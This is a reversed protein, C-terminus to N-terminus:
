DELFVEMGSLIDPLAATAADEGAGILEGAREFELLGIHGILPKIHVDPPEGALRSRTLRDQMINLASVMVGFLSPSHEERRFLRKTIGSYFKKQEEPPVDKDNFLDFGAVTSYAEGPKAAKGIIDANLDVAITMRSNMAHCPSIPVPNILAGDVLFRGNRKVPPFVGPLAFSAKLAETLSGNRIWIEHGTQIDVSVSIFPCPLDEVSMDGFNKELLANLRKGGILGASRVRLDLYSLIRYRNLSLAWEELEQLRGALYAGGVVAGISTGAVIGPYIGHRNLVKLVGIHTFGRAMGGGLAISLGKRPPNANNFKNEKDKNEAM